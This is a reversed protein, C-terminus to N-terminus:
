GRSLHFGAARYIGGDGSQTADAYSQVWDVQPYARSIIRMAVSIVRSESNRPMWEALALRHLDLLGDWRTGRVTGIVRRKDIPPGLQMAGGCKGDLFVGFHLQSRTDVKGSYHLCRVVRRADTASIPEVRIDKARGM